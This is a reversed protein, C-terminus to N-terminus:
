ISANMRSVRAIWDRLALMQDTVVKRTADDTCHGNASFKSAAVGIFIEPKMLVMANMFLLVKRLDYQSRAGGIPGTSASLIAVPKNAFPQDAGRSVWDLTNKLVGSISFNYEPSAILVADATRIKERLDQVEPPFGQAHLDGNYLPIDHLAFLDLRMSDPMSQGALTLAMGNYSGERLSGCIGLVTLTPNSV